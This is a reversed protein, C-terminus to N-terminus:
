NIVELMYDTALVLIEALRIRYILRPTSFVKFLKQLFSVQTM